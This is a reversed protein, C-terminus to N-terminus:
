IMMMKNPMLKYPCLYVDYIFGGKRKIHCVWWSSLWGVVGLGEGVMEVVKDLLQDLASRLQRAQGRLFGGWSYFGM